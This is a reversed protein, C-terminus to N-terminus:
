SQVSDLADTIIKDNQKFKPLEKKHHATPKRNIRLDISDVTFAKATTFSLRREFARTTNENKQM